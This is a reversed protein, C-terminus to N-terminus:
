ACAVAASRPRLGPLRWGRWCSGLPPLLRFKAACAGGGKGHWPEVVVRGNSAILHRQGPLLWVDHGGNEETLWIRDSVASLTWGAIGELSMAESAGIAFEISPTRVAM